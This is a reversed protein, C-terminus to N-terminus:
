FDILEDVISDETSYDIVGHKKEFHKSLQTRYQLYLDIESKGGSFWDFRSAFSDDNRRNYSHFINQNPDTKTGLSLDVSILESNIFKEIKIINKKSVRDTWTSSSKIKDKVRCLLKNKEKEAENKISM